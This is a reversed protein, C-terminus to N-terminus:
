RQEESAFDPFTPLKLRGLVPEILEKMRLFSPREAIRAHYRTLARFPRLDVKFYPPWGIMVFLYADAVTFEPGTLFPTKALCREIYSLTRHLKQRHLAKAAEPMAPNFLPGITKHLESGVYSLWEMVRYREITGFRPLLSSEPVREALLQLIVGVETILEGSGLDLSPVADKPNLEKYVTGDEILVHPQAYIDVFEITHPIALELLVLHVAGSCALPSAYLKVTM